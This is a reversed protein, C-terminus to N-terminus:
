DYKPATKGCITINRLQRADYITGYPHRGAKTDENMTRFCVITKHISRARENRNDEARSAISRGSETYSRSPAGKAVGNDWGYGRTGGEWTYQAAHPDLLKEWSRKMWVGKEESVAIVDVRPLLSSSTLFVNWM